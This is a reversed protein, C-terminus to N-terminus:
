GCNEKYESQRPMAYIVAEIGEKVILHNLIRAEDFVEKLSLSDHSIGIGIYRDFNDADFHLKFHYATNDDIFLTAEEVLEDRNDVINYTKDFVDPKCPYFEGNVGKVIYDGITVLMNGELTIVWMKNEDPNIILNGECFQQIDWPSTQASTRFAEVVVPKKRAKIRM